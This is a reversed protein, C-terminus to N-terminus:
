EQFLVCPAEKVEGAKLDGLEYSGYSIRILKAVNLGFFAMLRRIERNKGETLTM